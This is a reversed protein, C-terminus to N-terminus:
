RQLAAPGGPAGGWVEWLFCVVRRAVGRTCFVRPQRVRLSGFELRGDRLSAGSLKQWWPLDMGQRLAEQSYPSEYEPDAGRQAALAAIAGASQM